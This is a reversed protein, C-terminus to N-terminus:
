VYDIEVSKKMAQAEIEVKLKRATKRRKSMSWDKLQGPRRPLMVHKVLIGKETTQTKSKHLMLPLPDFNQHITSETVIGV